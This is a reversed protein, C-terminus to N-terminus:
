RGGHEDGEDVMNRLESLQELTLQRSKVMSLVLAEPRGGFLRDVLDRLAQVATREQTVAPSYLYARQEMVRKVSGKRHLITLVTQVTNYALPRVRQIHQHVSQVTAPGSAWLIKMIELELPTLPRVAKKKAM